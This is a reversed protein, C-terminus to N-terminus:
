HVQPNSLRDKMMNSRHKVRRGKRERVMNHLTRKREEETTRTQQKSGAGKEVEADISLM